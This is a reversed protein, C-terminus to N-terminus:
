SEAEGDARGPERGEFTAPIELGALHLLTSAVDINRVRETV